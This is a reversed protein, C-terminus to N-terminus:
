SFRNLLMGQDYQHLGLTKVTNEYGYRDMAPFTFPMCGLMMTPLSMLLLSSALGEFARHSGLCVIHSQIGLERLVKM